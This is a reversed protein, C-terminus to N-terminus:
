LYNYVIVCLVGIEGVGGSCVFSGEEVLFCFVLLYIGFELRM